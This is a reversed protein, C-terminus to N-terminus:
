IGESRGILGCGISGKQCEGETKGNGKELEGIKLVEELKEDNFIGMVNDISVM